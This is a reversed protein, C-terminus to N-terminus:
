QRCVHPQEDAARGRFAVQGACFGAQRCFPGVMLALTSNRSYRQGLSGLLGTLGLRLPASAMLLYLGM